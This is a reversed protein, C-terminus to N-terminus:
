APVTCNSTVQGGLESATQSSKRIESRPLLRRKLIAEADKGSQGHATDRVGELHRAGGKKPIYWGSV